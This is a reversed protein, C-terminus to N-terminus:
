RPAAPVTRAEAVAARVQQWGAVFSNRFHQVPGFEEFEDLALGDPRLAKRVEPFAEELQHVIAPDIPDAYSATPPPDQALVQAFTSWNITAHVAAGVLGTLDFPIRAGGALLISPYGREQCTEYCARTLIVGIMEIVSPDLKKGERAAVTKLHDGFIGTIPSVFFPPRVGTRTTVTLYRENAEILQALSFVETVITPSGEGVLTEFAAFGPETAPIKPTANPGLARAAHAEEVIHLTHMDDDPAGQCSVFGATGGSSEYLAQFREVIRGVLTLQIQQAAAADNETAAVAADIVPRVLEPARRLLNGGYAPNTTCGVAGQQLALDVEELTPNNVWVRTPTTSRMKTFYAGPM